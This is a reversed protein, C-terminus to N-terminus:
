SPRSSATSASLSMLVALIAVQHELNADNRAEVHFIAPDDLAHIEDIQAVSAIGDLRRNRVVGGTCILETEEVDRRTVFVAIRDVVHNCPRGLGAEHRQGDATAHARNVIDAPQQGAARVLYRDISRRYRAAGKYLLCGLFEPVLTDHNSDIRLLNRFG